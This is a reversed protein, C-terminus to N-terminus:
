CKVSNKNLLHEFLRLWGELFSKKVWITRYHSGHKTNPWTLPRMEVLWDTILPRIEVLWDSILRWFNSTNYPITTYSLIISTGFTIIDSILVYGSWKKKLHIFFGFLCWIKGLNCITCINICHLSDLDFRAYVQIRYFGFTALFDKSLGSIQRNLFYINTTVLNPNSLNWQIYV